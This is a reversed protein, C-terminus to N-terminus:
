ETWKIIVSNTEELWDVTCNLNEAAFRLPVFTRENESFPAVDIDVTEGNKVLEKKDLWMEVKDKKTTLTIKQDESQWQVDGGMAEVIARIPLVTREDVIMSKTGRGPDIEKEEGDVKMKTDGIVLEIMHEKTTSQEVLVAKDRNLSFQYKKDDESKGSFFDLQKGDSSMQWSFFIKDAGEGQNGILKDDVLTAFNYLVKEEKDDSNKELSYVSYKDAEKEVLYERNADKDKWKGTWAYKGQSLDVSVEEKKTSFVKTFPLKDVSNNPGIETSNIGKNPWYRFVGADNLGRLWVDGNSDIYALTASNGTVEVADTAIEGAVDSLYEWLTGQQDVYYVGDSVAKFDKVKEAIKLAEIKSKKQKSSEDGWVWLSDDNKLVAVKNKSVSVENVDDMIKMPKNIIISNKKYDVKKGMSIRLAVDDGCAYLKGEETVYFLSNGEAYFHKVKSAVKVFGDYPSELYHVDGGVWLTDDTKLYAIFDVTRVASKVGGMIKVPKLREPMDQGNSNMPAGFVGAPSQGWFWLSNDNTVAVGGLEDASVSRVDDLIKAPTTEIFKTGKKGAQGNGIMGYGWSWLSGDDKVVYVSRGVSITSDAKGMAFSASSITLIIIM